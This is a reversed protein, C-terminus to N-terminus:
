FDHLKDKIDVYLSALSTLNAKKRNQTFSAIALNEKDTNDPLIIKSARSMKCSKSRSGPGFVRIGVVKLDKPNEGTTKEYIMKVLPHTSIVQKSARKTNYDTKAKKLEIVFAILEGGVVKFIIYDAIERNVDESCFAWLHKKEDDKPNIIIYGKEKSSLPVIMGEHSEELFSDTYKYDSNIGEEIKGLRTAATM